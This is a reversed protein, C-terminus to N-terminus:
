SELHALEEIELVQFGERLAIDHERASNFGWGALLCQVRLDKVSILHLVKDDIFFISPFPIKFTEQLYRLHDRKSSAFDKDVIHHGPFLYTIGYHSLQLNVSERDKSTAIALVFRESLAQIAEIVGPFAPLLESWGEPDKKQQAARHSYFAQTYHTLDDKSLTAKFEEFAEQDQISSILHQNMIQMFVYYDEARNGMPLLIRFAEFLEPHRKEFQFIDSAPEVPAQLPFQHENVMEIYTNLATVYSDHISNSIVGDFDFVLMKKTEKM